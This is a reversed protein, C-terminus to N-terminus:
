NYQGISCNFALPSLCVYVRMVVMSSSNSNEEQRSNKRKQDSKISLERGSINESTRNPECEYIIYIYTRNYKAPFHAVSFFCTFMQLLPLAGNVIM